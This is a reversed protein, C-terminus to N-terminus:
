NLGMINLSRLFHSLVCLLSLAPQFHSYSSEWAQLFNFFFSSVFTPIWSDETSNMRVKMRRQKRVKMLMEDETGEDEDGEDIKLGNRRRKRKTKKMNKKEKEKKQREEDDVDAVM